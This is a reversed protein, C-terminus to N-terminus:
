RILTVEKVKSARASINTSARVGVGANFGLLVVLGQLVM